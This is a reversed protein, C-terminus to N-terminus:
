KIFYPLDKKSLIVIRYDRLYTSLRNVVDKLNDFVLEEIGSLNAGQLDRLQYKFGKKILEFDLESIIDLIQEEELEEFIYVPFIPNEEIDDYILGEELIKNIDVKNFKDLGFIDKM